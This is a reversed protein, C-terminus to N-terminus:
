AMPKDIGQNHIDTQKGILDKYDCYFIDCIITICDFRSIFLLSRFFLINLEYEENLLQTVKWLNNINQLLCYFKKM